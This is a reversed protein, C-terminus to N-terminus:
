FNGAQLRDLLSQHDRRSHYVFLKARYKELSARTFAANLPLSAEATELQRLLTEPSPTGQEAEREDLYASLLAFKQPNAALKENYYAYVFGLFPWLQKTPYPNIGKFTKVFHRRLVRWCAVQWPVDMYIVWDAAELLPDIWVLFVGESVWDPQAALAFADTVYEALRGGNKWAFQDLDHHPISFRAALEVALTTKGSGPGGIIHIKMTRIVEEHNIIERSNYGVQIILFSSIFCWDLTWDSM